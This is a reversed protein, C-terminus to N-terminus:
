EAAGSAGCLASNWDKFGTPRARIFRAAVGDLAIAIDRCARDGAEDNDLALVVQRERLLEIPLGVAPASASYVGIVAAREDQERAIRRRALCDLAGECIIIEADPGQYELAAALHEVGFPARPSRGRPSLYKPKGDDIRRRQVCSIRGFRDRWPIVLM